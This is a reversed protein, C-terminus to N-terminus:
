MQVEKVHFSKLKFFADFARPGLTCGLGSNKWGTWALDPNPYDCRNVFVTGADLKEILEEGKAIDKTWVSATLGYDSDNMLKVAENDGSVKSVPIVPGFTEEKMITMSHNTNVLLRPSIYHGESPLNQFTSNEPTADIAGKALADDIQAQISTVAARSIVPGVNTTSELPDGVNYLEM